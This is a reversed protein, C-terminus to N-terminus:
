EPSRRPTRRARGSRLAEAVERKLGGRAQVYIAQYITETSVQMGEDDAYDRSLVGSIQEPSWQQALRDAVYDRLRGPQALKASKPRTRKVAADRHAGHPLYLGGTSRAEVERTITSPSRGVQRGIARLSWGLRRLDAITEREQLSLLRSGVQDAVVPSPCTMSGMTTAETIYVVLTGDP